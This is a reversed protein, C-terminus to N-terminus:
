CPFPTISCHLGCWYYAHAKHDWTSVSVCFRTEGNIPLRTVEGMGVRLGLVEKTKWGCLLCTSTASQQELVTHKNVCIVTAVRTVSKLKKRIYFFLCVWISLRNWHTLVIVENVSPEPNLGRGGSRISVPGKVMEKNKWYIVPSYDPWLRRRTSGTWSVVRIIRRNWAMYRHPQRSLNHYAAGSIKSVTKTHTESVRM